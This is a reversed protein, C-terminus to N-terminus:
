ANLPMGRCKLWVIRSFSAAEGNWPKIWEFWGKIKDNLMAADRSMNDLFTIVMNLGGMSKVIKRASLERSLILHQSMRLDVWLVELKGDLHWLNYKSQGEIRWM